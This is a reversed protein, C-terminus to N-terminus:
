RPLKPFEAGLDDALGPQHTLRVPGNGSQGNSVLGATLAFRRPQARVPKGIQPHGM